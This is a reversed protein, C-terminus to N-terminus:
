RPASLFDVTKRSMKYFKASFGTSRNQIGPYHRETGALGHYPAALTYSDVLRAGRTTQGEELWCKRRDSGLKAATRTVHMLYPPLDDRSDTQRGAYISASILRSHTYLMIALQPFAQESYRVVNGAGILLSATCLSARLLSRAVWTRSIAHWTTSPWRTPRSM